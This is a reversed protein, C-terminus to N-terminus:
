LKGYKEVFGNFEEATIGSYEYKTGYNTHSAIVKWPIGDTKRISSGYGGDTMSIIFGDGEWIDAHWNDMSKIDPNKKKLPLTNKLHSYLKDYANM